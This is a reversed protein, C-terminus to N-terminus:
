QSKKDETMMIHDYSEEIHEKWKEQLVKKEGNTLKRRNLKYM